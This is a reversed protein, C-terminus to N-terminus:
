TLERLHKFYDQNYEQILGLIKDRGSKKESSTIVTVPMEEWDAAMKQNHLKVMNAREANKLKDSKTFVRVVPIGHKGIFRLWRADEAQLEHRMDVLLFVAVLNKRGLLYQRTYEQWKNRETKSARAFGYGPLDVLYWEDNILYHNITRTKGPTVSTFALKKRNTLMNILSSKGVNSRGLFAYEPRGTVPCDSPNSVTTEM